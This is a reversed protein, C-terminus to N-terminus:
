MEFVAANRLNMLVWLKPKLMSCKILQQADHGGSTSLDSLPLKCHQWLAPRAAHSLPSKHSHRLDLLSQVTVACTLFYISYM